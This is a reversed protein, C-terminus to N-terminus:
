PVRAELGVHNLRVWEALSLPATGTLKKYLGSLETLLVAMAPSQNVQLIAKWLNVLHDILERNQKRERVEAEAVWAEPSVERYRIPRGLLTTLERALENLSFV